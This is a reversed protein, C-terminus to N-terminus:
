GSGTAQVTLCTGRRASRRLRRTGPRREAHRRAPVGLLTETRSESKSGHRFCLRRTPSDSLLRESTTTWYCGASGGDM